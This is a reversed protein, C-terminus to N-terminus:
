VNTGSKGTQQIIARSGRSNRRNEAGVSFIVFRYSAGAILDSAVFSPQSTMETTVQDDRPVVSDVRTTEM